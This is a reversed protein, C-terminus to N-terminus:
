AGASIRRIEAPDGGAGPLYRSFEPPRFGEVLAEELHMRREFEIDERTVAITLEAAEETLYPRFYEPTSEFLSRVAAVQGAIQMHFEAMSRVQWEIKITQM